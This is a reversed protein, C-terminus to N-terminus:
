CRVPPRQQLPNRYWSCLAKSCTEFQIAGLLKLLPLM